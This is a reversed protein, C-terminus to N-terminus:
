DVINQLSTNSKWTLVVVLNERHCLRNNSIVLYYKFIPVSTDTFRSSSDRSILQLKIIQLSINTWRERQHKPYAKPESEALEQLAPLFFRLFQSLYTGSRM